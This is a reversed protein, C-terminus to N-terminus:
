SCRKKFLEPNSVSLQGPPQCHRVADRGLNRFTPRLRLQEVRGDGAETHHMQKDGTPGIKFGM